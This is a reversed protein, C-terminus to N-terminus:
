VPEGQIDPSDIHREDIANVVEAKLECVPGPTEEANSSDEQHVIRATSGINAIYGCDDAVIVKLDLSDIHIDSGAIDSHYALFNCLGIHIPIGHFPHFHRLTCTQTVLRAQRRLETPVRCCFM